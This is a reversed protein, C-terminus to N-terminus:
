AGCFTGAPADPASLTLWTWDGGGPEAQWVPVRLCPWHAEDVSPRAPVQVLTTAAAACLTGVPDDTACRNAIWSNKGPLALDRADVDSNGRMSNDLVFTNLAGGLTIGRANDDSRNGFLVNGDNGSALFAGSGGNGTMVNRYLLSNILNGPLGTAPPVSTFASGVNDRLTNGVVFAAVTAAPDEASFGDRRFFIAPLAGVVSNRAITLGVNGGGVTVGARGEGFGTFDIDNATIDSNVAGSIAIGLTEQRITNREISVDAHPYPGAVSLGEVNGTTTNRRIVANLLAGNESAIGAQPYGSGNARVCNNEVVTRRAGSSQLEIGFDINHEIINRRIRYGSAKESTTIGTAAGTVVFGDLKTDTANIVIGGRIVAAGFEAPAGSLCDVKTAAPTRAIVTLPKDITINGVYTGGCVRVTDGGRAAAIAPQITRYHARANFGTM